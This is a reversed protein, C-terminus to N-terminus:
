RTGRHKECDHRLFADRMREWTYQSPECGGTLGSKFGCELCEWNTDNAYKYCDSFPNNPDSKREVLMAQMSVMFESFPEPEAPLASYDVTTGWKCGCNDCPNIGDHPERCKCCHLKKVEAENKFEFKITGTCKHEHGKFTAGCVICYTM